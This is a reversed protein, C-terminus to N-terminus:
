AEAYEYGALVLTSAHRNSIVWFTGNCGMVIAWKAYDNCNYRYNVAQGLTSFEARLSRTATIQQATM